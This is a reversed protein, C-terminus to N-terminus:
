KLMNSFIKTEKQTHSHPFAFSTLLLSSLMATTVDEMLDTEPALCYHPTLISLLSANRHHMEIQKLGRSGSLFDGVVESGMM